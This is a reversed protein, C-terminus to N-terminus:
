LGFIAFIISIILFVWSLFAFFGKITKMKYEYTETVNKTKIMYANLLLVFSVLISYIARM